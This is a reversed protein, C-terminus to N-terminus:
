FSWLGQRDWVAQGFFGIERKTKASLHQGLHLPYGISPLTYTRIELVATVLQCTHLRDPVNTLIRHWMYEISPLNNWPSSLFSISQETKQLGPESKAEDAPTPQRAQLMPFVINHQWALLWTPATQLELM